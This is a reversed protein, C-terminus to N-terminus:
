SCEGSGTLPILVALFLFRGLGGLFYGSKPLEVLYESPFAGLRKVM